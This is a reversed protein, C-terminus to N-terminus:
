HKKKKPWDTLGKIEKLEEYVWLCWGKTVTSQIKKLREAQQTKNINIKTNSNDTVYVETGQFKNMKEM